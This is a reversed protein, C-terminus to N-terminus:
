QKELLSETEEPRLLPGVEGSHGEEWSNLFASGKYDTVDAYFTANFHTRLIYCREDMTRALKLRVVDEPVLDDEDEVGFLPSEYEAVWLGGNKPWGVAVFRQERDTPYPEDGREIAQDAASDGNAALRILQWRAESDWWKAGLLLLKQCFADEEAKDFRRQLPPNLPDLSLYEFDVADAPELIVVGGRSPWAFVLVEGGTISTRRTPDFPGLQLPLTPVPAKPHIISGSILNQLTYPWYERPIFVTCLWITIRHFM